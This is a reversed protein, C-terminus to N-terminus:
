WCLWLFWFDKPDFGSFQGGLPLATQVSIRAHVVRFAPIEPQLSGSFRGSKRWGLVIQVHSYNQCLKVYKLVHIPFTKPWQIAASKLPEHHNMCMWIVLLFSGICVVSPDVKHISQLVSFEMGQVQHRWPVCSKLWPAKGRLPAM